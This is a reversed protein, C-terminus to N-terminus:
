KSWSSWSPDFAGSRMNTLKQMNAGDIRIMALNFVPDRGFNSAFILYRGDPSWSPDENSGIATLQIPNRGDTNTVFIHHRNESRCVFAIKDGKPSWVPSTCYKSAVYSIRRISSGDANMTYIQPMGNSRNSTFVIKSGDPSWDPSVDITSYNSTIKKIVDGDDDMLVLDSKKGSTVSTIIKSGDKSYKAGVELNTNNTLRSLKKGRLRMTFLDPRRDRYNTFIVKSSDPSWSSSVALGRDDTLQQTNNGDLDMVFLEKFRGVKGSFSIKTGFPGFDGTFYKLIENSFKHSIDRLHSIDGTYEKALKLKQIQVDFLYLRIKINDGKTEIQGRVLGEVGIVSWDSYAFEEPKGCKGPTEIYSEPNLIEFYGSLQLDRAIVRSIEIAGKTNGNVACPQPIAIPYLSGSGSVSLRTQASLTTAILLILLIQLTKLMTSSISAFNM